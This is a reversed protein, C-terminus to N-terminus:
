IKLSQVVGELAGVAAPRVGVTLVKEYSGSGLQLSAYVSQAVEGRVLLEFEHGSSEGLLSAVLLKLEAASTRASVTYLSGFASRRAPPLAALWGDDPGRLMPEFRVAVEVDPIAPAPALANASPLAAHLAGSPVAPRRLPVFAPAAAALIQEGQQLLGCYASWVRPCLDEGVAGVADAFQSVDEACSVALAQGGGIEAAALLCATALVHPDAHRVSPDLEDCCAFAAAAKEFYLASRDAGGCHADSTSAASLSSHHRIQMTREAKWEREGLTDSRFNRNSFRPLFDAAVAPRIELSLKTRAIAELMASAADARQIDADSCAHPASLVALVEASTRALGIATGARSAVNVAGAGLQQPTYEAALKTAYDPELMRTTNWLLMANATMEPPLTLRRAIRRIVKTIGDAPQRESLPVTRAVYSPAMPSLKGLVHGCATCTYTGEDDDETVLLRPHPCAAAAGADAGADSGADGGRFLALALDSDSVGQRNCQGSIRVRCKADRADAWSGGLLLVAVDRSGTGCAIHLATDGAANQLTSCKPSRRLLHRASEACRAFAALHLPANGEADVQAADAGRQLLARVCEPEGAHAGVHLAMQGGQTRPVDLRAGARLLQALIVFHGRSAAVAVATWGDFSVLDLHVAPCAVLVQATQLAAASPAGLLLLHLPTWGQHNLACCLQSRRGVLLAVATAHAGLAALHLASDGRRTEAAVDAGRDLLAAAVGARGAACAHHLAGFGEADLAGAAGGAADALALVTRLVAADTAGGPADTASWSPRADGRAAAHLASMGRTAAPASPAVAAAAAREPTACGDLLATVADARASRAAVQLAAAVAADDGGGGLLWAAVAAACEADTASPAGLCRLAAPLPQQESM